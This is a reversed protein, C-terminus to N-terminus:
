CYSADVDVLNIIQFLPIGLADPSLEYPHNRTCQFSEVYQQSQFIFLEDRSIMQTFLMRRERDFHFCKLPGKRKSM